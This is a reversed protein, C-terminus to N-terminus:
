HSTEPETFQGAARGILAREARNLVWQLAKGRHTITIEFNVHTTTNVVPLVEVEVQRGRLSMPFKLPRTGIFTVRPLGKPARRGKKRRPKSGEVHEDTKVFSSIFEKQYPTLAAVVADAPVRSRNFRRVSCRRRRCCQVSEAYLTLGALGITRAIFRRFNM